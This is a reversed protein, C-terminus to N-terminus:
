ARRPERQVVLSVDIDLGHAAHDPRARVARTGIEAVKRRCDGCHADHGGVTLDDGRALVEARAEVLGRAQREAHHADDSGDGEAAHGGVVQVFPDPEFSGVRAELMECRPDLRRAVVLEPPIREAVQELVFRQRQGVRRRIREGFALAFPDAVRM